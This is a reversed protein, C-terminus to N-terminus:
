SFTWAVVISSFSSSSIIWSCVRIMVYVYVDIHIMEKCAIMWGHLRHNHWLYTVVRCKLSIVYRHLTTDHRRISWEYRPYFMDLDIARPLSLVICLVYFHYTLSTAATWELSHPSIRVICDQLYHQHTLKPFQYQIFSKIQSLVWDNTHDRLYM